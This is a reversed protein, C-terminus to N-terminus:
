EAALTLWYDADDACLSAANDSAWEQVTRELWPFDGECILRLTPADAEFRGLLASVIHVTGMDPDYDFTVPVDSLEGAPTPFDTTLTHRIM